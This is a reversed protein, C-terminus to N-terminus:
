VSPSLGILILKPQVGVRIFHGAYVLVVVSPSHGQQSVCQRYYPLFGNFYCHGLPTKMLATELSVAVEKTRRLTEVHTIVRGRSDRRSSVVVRYAQYLFFNACPSSLSFHILYIIPILLPTLIACVFGVVFSLCVASLIPSRM